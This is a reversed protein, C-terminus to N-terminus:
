VCFIQCDRPLQRPDQLELYDDVVTKGATCGLPELLERVRVGPLKPDDKLLRHIDTKFPDLVGVKPARRYGPPTESRLARRVTNRSLGTARALQKISKGGVFHERRLWGVAGSRGGERRRGDSIVVLSLVM